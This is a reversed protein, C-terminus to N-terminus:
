NFKKIFNKITNVVRQVDKDSLSPYLPLSICGNYYEESIPFNNKKFNYKKKYYSLYHIPIYHIMPAFKKSQLYNFLDYRDFNKNKLVSIVYLHYNSKINKLENYTKIFEIDKLSSNYYNVIQRRRKIFKNLRKLQSIGLAAQFDTLRYNYGLDEMDYYWNGIRKNKDFMDSRRDVGHKRLKMIKKYIKEDNTLVVGGEGTTIHKVPHFSFTCIDAHLCDGCMYKKNKIKYSSGISHSGDEIVKLNYKKAIKHIQYLNAPYGRFDVPIIAKTRSTIAKEVQTPDINLTKEDIDVLKIDAGQYLVVNSTACFTIPTTIVEDGKKLDLSAVALHLAASGSSVAVAYKAGVYNAIKKAFLEVTPGQTISNTKLIKTVERIDDENIEHLGYPILKNL